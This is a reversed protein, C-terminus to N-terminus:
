RGEAALSDVSVAVLAPEWCAVLTPWDIHEPAFDVAWWDIDVVAICYRSDFDVVATAWGVPM